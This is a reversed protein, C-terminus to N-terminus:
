SGCHEFQILMTTHIYVCVCVCIYIYIYINMVDYIIYVSRLTASSHRSTEGQMNIHVGCLHWAETRCSFVLYHVRQWIFSIKWLRRQHQWWSFRCNWEWVGCSAWLKQHFVAQACRHPGSLILMYIIDEISKKLKYIWSTLYSKYLRIGYKQQLFCEHM